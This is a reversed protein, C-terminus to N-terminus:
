RIHGYTRRADAHNLRVRCNPQSKAGLMKALYSHETIPSGLANDYKRLRCAPQVSNKIIVYIVRITNRCYNENVIRRSENVVLPYANM